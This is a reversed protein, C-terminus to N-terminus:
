TICNIKFIGKVKIQNGINNEIKVKDSKFKCVIPISRNYKPIYISVQEFPSNGTLTITGQISIKSNNKLSEIEPPTCSLILFSVSLLIMNAFFTKLKM